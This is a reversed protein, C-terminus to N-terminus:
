KKPVLVFFHHYQNEFPIYEKEIVFHKRMHSRFRATSYGRKGLEWYHQGNFTHPVPFPIKLALAIEPLFPIKFLLKLPPGFHPVSVIVKKRSVRALESLSTPLKEYSLHELVEFACVVDFSKDTFPLATVSGIVDAGVDDAIDVSTYAIETNRALYSSVVGDGIGVELVSTPKVNLIETIQYHYSAWRDRGCYRFFEYATNDVQKKQM